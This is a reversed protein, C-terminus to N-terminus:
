WTRQVPYADFQTDASVIEIGEAIAQAVLLRDFPDRHHFPLNLLEATHGPSINLIEFGYDVLAIDIFDAYPQNLQWKGLSIKIAMEWYSAPSFLITNNPDGIVAAATKSLKVDGEIFWYLAHTDLLVRM